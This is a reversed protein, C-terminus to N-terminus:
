QDLLLLLYWNPSVSSIGCGMVQLAVCSFAAKRHESERGEEWAMRGPLVSVLAM